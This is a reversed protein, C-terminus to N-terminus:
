FAMEHVGVAGGGGAPVAAADGAPEDGDIVLPDASEVEAECPDEENEGSDQRDQHPELQGARVGGHEATPRVRTDHRHVPGQHDEEDEDRDDGTEGRVDDRQHDPCAAIASGPVAAVARQSRPKAPAAM